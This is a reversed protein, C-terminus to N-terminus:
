LQNSLLGFRLFFCSAIMMMMMIVIMIVFGVMNASEFAVFFELLLYFCTIPCHSFEPEDDNDAKNEHCSLNYATYHRLRKCDQGISRM